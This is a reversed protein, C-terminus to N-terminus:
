EHPTVCLPQGARRRLFNHEAFEVCDARARLSARLRKNVVSEIVLADFGLMACLDCYQWFWGRGRFREPVEIQAIILVEPLVEGAADYDRWVRLYARFGAWALCRAFVREDAARAEAVFALTQTELSPLVVKKTRKM